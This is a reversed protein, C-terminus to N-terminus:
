RLDSLMLVAHKRAFHIRSRVTGPPIDLTQGIEVYTAGSVFLAFPERLTPSLQDFMANVRPLIDPEATEKVTLESVEHLQSLYSADPSEFVMCADSLNLNLPVTRGTEHAYQRATDIAVSRIVRYLYSMPLRVHKQHRIFRLVALQALDDTDVPGITRFYARAYRQAKTILSSLLQKKEIEQM